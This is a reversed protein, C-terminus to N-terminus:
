GVRLGFHRLQSTIKSYWTYCGSASKAVAIGVAAHGAFVPSGSDGPNVCIGRVLALNTITRAAVGPSAYRLSTTALTVTGCSTTGTRGATLCVKEGVRADRASTIAQTSVRGRTVVAVQSRSKTALKIVGIDGTGARGETGLGGYEWRVGTGLAAGGVRWTNRGGEVVCHGATVVYWRGAATRVPLGVTCSHGPTLMLAGGSGTTCARTSSCGVGVAVPAAAAAPAAASAPTPAAQAATGGVGALLGTLTLALLLIRTLRTM